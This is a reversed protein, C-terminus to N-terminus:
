VPISVMWAIEFGLGVFAAAAIVLGAVYQRREFRCVPRRATFM